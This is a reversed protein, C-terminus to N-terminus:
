TKLVGGADAADLIALGLRRVLGGLQKSVPLVAQHRAGALTVQMAARVAELVAM